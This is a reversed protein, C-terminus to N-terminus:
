GAGALAAGAPELVHTLAARMGREFVAVSFREANRRLVGTDFTMREAAAVAGNLSAPTQEDFLLGTRDPVVTELAGGAGFAIVPTGAAQAEVAIIGFDEVMPM